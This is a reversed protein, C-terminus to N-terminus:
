DQHHTAHRETYDSVRWISFEISALRIVDSQEVVTPRTVRVDNLFTGNTSATDQILIRDPRCIILCHNWSIEPDGISITSRPNAGVINDGPSLPYRQAIRTPRYLMGLHHPEMEDIFRQAQNTRVIPQTVRMLVVDSDEHLGQHHQLNEGCQGCFLADALVPSQCTPCRMVLTGCSTCFKATDAVNSECYLCKM